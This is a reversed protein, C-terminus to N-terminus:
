SDDVAATGAGGAATGTLGGSRGRGMGGEKGRKGAGGTFGRGAAMRAERPPIRSARAKGRKEIYGKLKREKIGRKQAM